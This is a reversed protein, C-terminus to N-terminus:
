ACIEPSLGRSPSCVTYCYYYEKTRTNALPVRMELSLSVTQGYMHTIYKIYHNAIYVARAM